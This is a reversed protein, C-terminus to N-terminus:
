FASTNYTTIRSLNRASIFALVRFLSNKIFSIPMSDRHSPFRRPIGPPQVLIAPFHHGGSHLLCRSSFCGAPPFYFFNDSDSSFCSFLSLSLSLSLSFCLSPYLFPSHFFFPLYQQPSRAVQSIQDTCPWSVFRHFLYERQSRSIARLLKWAFDVFDQRRTGISRDVHKICQM